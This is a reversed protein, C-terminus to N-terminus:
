LTLKDSSGTLSPIVRARLRQVPRSGPKRALRGCFQWAKQSDSHNVFRLAM